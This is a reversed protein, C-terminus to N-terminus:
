VCFLVQDPRGVPDDSIIRYCRVVNAGSGDRALYSMPHFNRGSLWVGRCKLYLTFTSPYISVQGKGTITIKFLLVTLKTNSHIDDSNMFACLSQDKDFKVQVDTLGPSTYHEYIKLGGPVGGCLAVLLALIALWHEKWFARDKGAEAM